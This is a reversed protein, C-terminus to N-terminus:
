YTPATILIEALKGNQDRLSVGLSGYTTFYQGARLMTQRTTEQDALKKRIPAIDDGVRLQWVRSGLGLPRIEVPPAQASFLDIAFVEGQLYLEIGQAPYRLRNVGPGCPTLEGPGLKAQIEDQSHLLCVEGAQSVPRYDMQRPSVVTALATRNQALLQKAREAWITRGGHIQLFAQMGALARKKTAQDRSKLDCLALNYELTTRDSRNLHATKLTQQLVKRSDAERGRALLVCSLNNLVSVQHRANLAPDNDAQDIAKLFCKQAEALKPGGPAVLQAVGLNTWALVQNPQVKLSQLAAEVARRHLDAPPQSRLRVQLSEARPYFDRYMLMGVNYRRLYDVSLTDVYAMLYAHSLNTWAEHCDPFDEVVERFSEAARQFQMVALLTVGSDFASKSHWIASQGKDLQAVRDTWSPHDVGAGLYKDYHEDETALKKLHAALDRFRYGAQLALQLGLKDADLEQRRTFAHRLLVPDAQARPQCHRLSLHSLEHGLSFALASELDKQYHELYGRCVKVRPQQTILDIYAFANVEKSEEIELRPPWAVGAPAEVYPLLRAFVSECLKENSDQAWVPAALLLALLARRLSM